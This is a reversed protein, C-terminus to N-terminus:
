DMRSDSGSGGGATAAATTILLIGIAISRSSENGSILKWQISGIFWRM